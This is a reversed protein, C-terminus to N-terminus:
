QKVQKQMFSEVQVHRFNKFNKVNIFNLWCEYVNM